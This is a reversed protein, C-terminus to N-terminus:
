ESEPIRIPTVVLNTPNFRVRRDGVLCCVVEGATGASHYPDRGTAMREILRDPFLGATEATVVGDAVDTHAGILTATRRVAPLLSKVWGSLQAVNLDKPDADMLTFRIRQKIAASESATVAEGVLTAAETLKEEFTRLDYDFPRSMM